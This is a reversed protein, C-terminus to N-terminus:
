AVGGRKHRRNDERLDDLASQALRGGDTAWGNAEAMITALAAAYRQRATEHSVGVSTGIRRWTLAPTQGRLRLVAERGSQRGLGKLWGLATLMDDQDRGTPEIFFPRPDEAALEGPSLPSSRALGALLDAFTMTSPRDMRVWREAIFARMLRGEAERLSIAGPASYTVLHTDLWWQKGAPESVSEGQGRRNEKTSGAAASPAGSCAADRSHEMDRALDAASMAGVEAAISAEVAKFSQGATWMTPPADDDAVFAIEPLPLKWAEPVLPSWFEPDDGDLTHPGAWGKGAEVARRQARAREDATLPLFVAAVGDKVAWCMRGKARPDKVLAAHFMRASWLVVVRVGLPPDQLAVSYWPRAKM